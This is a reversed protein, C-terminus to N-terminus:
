FYNKEILRKRLAERARFLRSKVTGQEIGLMDGIEEYSYDNIDRLIIIERHEDSLEDIAEYLVNKREALIVADSPDASPSTDPLDMTAADGDEDDTLSVLRASKQKRLCDLAANKAIRYLWSSFSSEGKFTGISHYLKLFVEQSVDFSDESNHLVSFVTTCVFREYKRVLEEFAGVDGGSAKKVLDFDKSESAHDM